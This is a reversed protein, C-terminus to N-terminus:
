RSYRIALDVSRALNDVSYDIPANTQQLWSTNSLVSEIDLLASRPVVAFVMSTAQVEKAYVTAVTDVSEFFRM